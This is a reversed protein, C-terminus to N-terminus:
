QQLQENKKETAKRQASNNNAATTAAYGYEKTPTYSHRKCEM